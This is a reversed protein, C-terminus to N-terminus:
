IKKGDKLSLTETAYLIGKGKYPDPNKYTKIIAAIQTVLLYSNSLIFLKNGKLCFIKLNKPIRFYIFHSFGLKFHLLNLNGLKLLSVRFGIGVLKLKKCYLWSMDLFIQKLLSVQTGQIVKLLRKKNNSTKFFSERTIKLLRKEKNIILKTKLLITKKAFSNIFLLIHRVDCYYVTITKPVKVIHKKAILNNM